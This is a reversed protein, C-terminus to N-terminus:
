PLKLTILRFIATKSLIEAGILSLLFTIVARAGTINCVIVYARYMLVVLWVATILAVILAM